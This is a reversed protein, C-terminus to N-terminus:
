AERLIYYHCVTPHYVKEDVEDDDSSFRGLKRISVTVVMRTNLVVDMNQGHVTLKVGGSFCCKTAVSIIIESLDALLDVDCCNSNVLRRDWNRWSGQFEEQSFDGQNSIV